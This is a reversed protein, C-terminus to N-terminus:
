YGWRGRPANSLYIVPEAAVRKGRAGPRGDNNTDYEFNMNRWASAATRKHAESLDVYRGGEGVSTGFDAFILALTTELTYERLAWPELILFPFRGKAVLRGIVRRWAEDIFPQYSTLDNPRLDDLDSYCAMLDADTVVPYLARLVLAASRRFTRTVGDAFTLAWEEQWGDGVTLTSPISAAPIAYQAVDTVVSVAVADVVAVGGADFLTFTGSAPAVLAADRHISLSVVQDRNREIYSPFPIRATYPTEWSDTASM